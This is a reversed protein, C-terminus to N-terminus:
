SQGANAHPGQGSTVSAIDTSTTSADSHHPDSYPESAQHRRQILPMCSKSTIRGLTCADIYAKHAQERADRETLAASYQEIWDSM